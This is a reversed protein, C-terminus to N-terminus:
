EASRRVGRMDSGGSRDKARREIRKLEVQWSSLKRDNFLLM